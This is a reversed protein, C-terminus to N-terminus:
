ANNGGFNGGSTIYFTLQRALALSTRLTLAGLASHIITFAWNFPDLIFCFHTWEVNQSHEGGM